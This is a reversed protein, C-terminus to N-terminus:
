RITQWPLKKVFTIFKRWILHSMVSSVNTSPASTSYGFAASTTFLTPPETNFNLGGHLGFVWNNSEQAQLNVDWLVFFIFLPFYKINFKM